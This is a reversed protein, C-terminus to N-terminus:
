AVDGMPECKELRATLEALVADHATQELLLTNALACLVTWRHNNIKDPQAQFAKDVLDFVESPWVSKTQQDSAPSEDSTAQASEVTKEASQPQNRAIQEEIDIQQGASNELEDPTMLEEIRALLSQTVEAESDGNLLCYNAYSEFESQHAKDVENIRDTDAIRSPGNRYQSWANMSCRTITSASAIPTTPSQNPEQDLQQALEQVTEQQSAPQLKHAAANVMDLMTQGDQLLDDRNIYGMREGKWEKDFVAIACAFGASSAEQKKNAPKFWAPLDFSIRGRIFCVHDADEPWWVESTASKIVYVMKAGKDREIMTKEIISRMGTVAQGDEICARSYPPNAYAKGGKLDATWDQTLANDEVTYFNPCKNNSGDTFLDLVFPGFKAFVGWFLAPPTQWQDGVEKLLHKSQQKLETLKQAYSIPTPKDTM